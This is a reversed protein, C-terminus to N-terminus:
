SKVTNFTGQLVDLQRRISEDHIKQYLAIIFEKQMNLREARDGRTEVIERWREPQYATMNCDKKVEGIRESLEMRRAILDIIEADLSDMLQRLHELDVSKNADSTHQERVVLNQLLSKLAQPTIQQAADSLAMAPNPHTEIMLGEFGMDMAKQAIEAVLASNGTIHSPDCFIPLDPNRRKLEIPIPWNPQNRYASAAQYVSFGRHIAAVDKIGAVQFREIAGQWLEVDPNVPNKVMVPIDVGKLADAIHQVQFPNVTTRAGIWIADIGYKLALEVHESEAVEVTVPLGYQQKMEKLWGLAEEGRGEFKGPRTRPKWVGARFLRVGMDKLAAAVEMVQERSEAGCPGAIIYPKGGTFFSM